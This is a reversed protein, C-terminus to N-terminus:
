SDGNIVQAKGGCRGHRAGTGQGGNKKPWIKEDLNKEDSNKEDLNKEDSTKEDTKPGDDTTRREFFIKQM